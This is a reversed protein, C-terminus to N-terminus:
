KDLCFTEIMHDHLCPSQGWIGEPKNQFGVGSKVTEPSSLRGEHCRECAAQTFNM